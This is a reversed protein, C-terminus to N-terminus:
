GYLCNDDESIGIDNRKYKVNKKNEQMKIKNLHGNRERERKIARKTDRQDGKYVKEEM